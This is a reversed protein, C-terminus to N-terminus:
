SSIMGIMKIVSGTRTTDRMANEEFSLLEQNSEVSNSFQQRCKSLKGHKSYFDNSGRKFEPSPM